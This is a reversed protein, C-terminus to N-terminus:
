VNYNELNKLLEIQAISKNKLARLEKKASSFSDITDIDTLPQIIKTSYQTYKLLDSFTDITGLRIKSIFDIDYQNSLGLIYFGGDPSPGITSILSSTHEIANILVEANFAPVDSACFVIYEYSRRLESFTNMMRENLTEGTQVITQMKNWLPNFQGEKSALAWITQINNSKLKESVTILNKICWNYIDIAENSGIQSALRTKVADVGPTKVFPCLVIKRIRGNTKM